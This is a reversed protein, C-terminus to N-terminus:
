SHDDIFLIFYQQGNWSAMPFPGYIDTHILGLVKTVRNAGFRRVSIQKGKICDVCVELDVLDPIKSFEM